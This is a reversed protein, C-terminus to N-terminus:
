INNRGVILIAIMIPIPNRDGVQFHLLFVFDITNHHRKSAESSIGRMIGPAEWIM